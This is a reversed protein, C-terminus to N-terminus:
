DGSPTPTPTASKVTGEAKAEEVGSKKSVDSLAADLTGLNGYEEVDRYAQALTYSRIAPAVLHEQIEKLKAARLADMRGVFTTISQDFLVNKSFAASSGTVAGAIGSLIKTTGATTLAGAANLGITATQTGFGSWSVGRRILDVYKRYEYDKVAIGEYVFERKQNAGDPTTDWPATGTQGTTNVGFRANWHAVIEAGSKDYSVCGSVACVLFGILLRVYITLQTGFISIKSM